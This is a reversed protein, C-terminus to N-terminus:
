EARRYYSSYKKNQKNKLEEACPNPSRQERGVSSSGQGFGSRNILLEKKKCRIYTFDMSKARAVIAKSRASTARSKSSRLRDAIRSVTFGMKSLVVDDCDFCCACICGLISYCYCSNVVEETTAVDDLFIAFAQIWIKENVVVKWRM